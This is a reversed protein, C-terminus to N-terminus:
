VTGVTDDISSDLRAGADAALADVLHDRSVTGLYTGDADTVPAGMIRATRLAALWERATDGANLVVRPPEAAGSVPLGPLLTLGSELQSAASDARSRLQSRYISDDFRRVILTAIAVAVMAPGIIEINGTMQAVMLINALPARAIGGFLAMMGIVV